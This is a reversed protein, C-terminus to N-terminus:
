WAFAKGKLVADCSITSSQRFWGYIGNLASKRLSRAIYKQSFEGRLTLILQSDIWPALSNTSPDLFWALVFLDAILFIFDYDILLYTTAIYSSYKTCYINIAISHEFFYIKNSFTFIQDSANLSDFYVNISGRASRIIRMLLQARYNKIFNNIKTYKQFCWYM